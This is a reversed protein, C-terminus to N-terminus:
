KRTEVTDIYLKQYQQVVIPLDYNEKIRKTAALGLKTRGEDGINIMRIIANALETPNRRQVIYGTDDIINKVDGVDTSVCPTGCSMSEGIINPFGEGYASSLVVIDLAPLLKWLENQEGLFSIKEFLGLKNVLELFETNDENMSKGVLVYHVSNNKYVQSAANIFTSHDKMPDYRAILGILTKEKKIGLQSCLRTKAKDDPCYLDTNIGNPIVFSKKPKYGLKKHAKLGSISNAIVLDPYVSLKILLRLVFSSLFSYDSMDVDSCRINWFIKNVGTIKGAVLGLLDAHYLWTQLIDPKLMNLLKVIKFIVFFNSFIHRMNLTYVEINEERLKNALKGEPLLCIVINDFKKKDMNTTIKVLMSEAGGVDLTTILHVIKIIKNTM